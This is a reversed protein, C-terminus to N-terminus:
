SDEKEHGNESGYRESKIFSLEPVYKLYMRKGLSRKIFGRARELQEVLEDPRLLSSSVFVKAKKLDDSAVVDAISTAKLHPNDVENLLIDALCHKLTSSFREVRYSM